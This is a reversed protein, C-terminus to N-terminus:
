NVGTPTQILTLGTVSEKYAKLINADTVDYNMAEIGISMGKPKGLMEVVHVENSEKTFQLIRPEKLTITGMESNANANVTEGIVMGVPTVIMRIM